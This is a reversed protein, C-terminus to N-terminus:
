AKNEAMAENVIMRAMLRKVRARISGRFSRRANYGLTEIGAKRYLPMWAISTTPLTGGNSILEQVVQDYRIIPPRGPRKCTNNRTLQKSLSRLFRAVNEPEPFRASLDNALIKVGQRDATAASLLAQALAPVDVTVSASM